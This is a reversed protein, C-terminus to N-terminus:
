WPAFDRHMRERVVCVAGLREHCQCATRAEDARVDRTEEELIAAIDANKVKALM